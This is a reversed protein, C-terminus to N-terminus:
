LLRDETATPEEPGYPPEDIKALERIHPSLGGLQGSGM